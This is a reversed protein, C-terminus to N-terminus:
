LRRMAMTTVRGKHTSWETLVRRRQDIACAAEELKPSRTSAAMASHLTDHLKPGNRINFLDASRFGATQVSTRVACISIPGPTM